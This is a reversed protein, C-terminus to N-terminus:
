IQSAGVASTGPIALLFRFQMVADANGLGIRLVVVVCAM